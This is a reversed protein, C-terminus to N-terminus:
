LANLQVWVSEMRISYTKILSIVFCDFIILFNNFWNFCILLIFKIEIILHTKRRLCISCLKNTSDTTPHISNLKNIHNFNNNPLFYQMKHM